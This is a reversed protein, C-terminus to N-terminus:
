EVGEPLNIGAGLINVLSPPNANGAGNGEGYSYANGNGNGNGNGGRKADDIASQAGPPLGADAAAFERTIPAIFTGLVLYPTTRGEGIGWVPTTFDFSTFSGQQMMQVATLGTAGDQAGNGIGVARVDRNWYSNSITGFNNGVLGGANPNGSVEGSSYSNVITGGNAGVLGGVDDLGGQVRGTAYSNSINGVNQGVLGGVSDNVSTSVGGTSYSSRITGEVNNGVLGGVRAGGGVSGTNYSNSITGRNYGALAGVETWGRVSGGILGVNSIVATDATASFLGVFGAELSLRDIFLGNISHGLGDLQGRFPDSIFGIPAFGAGAHWTTTATADINGGLVYRGALNGRIGQLDTGTFSGQSGLATIVTYGLTAGDSGLKTSFNNGAPLNVQAGTAIIYQSTNGAALSGQGYELALSATGYAYLNTNINIDNQATLTLKNAAWYVTDNVNINGATGATGSSSLISFNGGALANDVATGTMDGGSPAITFDVPDILWTGARGSPASTTVRATDAIKVHAASTEIFGGDGGNPASADLTGGVNTTGAAMGALLLINGPQREVTQAEIVGTNNVTSALLSEKAGATLIVQGGNARILGGNDALVNLAGQTVEFKILKNDALTLQVEGGTGLVVSGLHAQMTGHNLVQNGILALTGGNRATLTGENIVKARNALDSFVFKGDLFNRDTLNLTSAVLGGVDVQAGAGFLVGNPNVLFVQGNSSLNGYIESRSTGLVRNLAISSASPQDFRVSNDAGINFSQWNIALRDTAQTVLLSKGSLQSITATGAVIQGGSPLVQAHTSLALSAGVGFALAVALTLPNRRALASRYM